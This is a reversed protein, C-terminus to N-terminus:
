GRRVWATGQLETTCEAGRKATCNVVSVTYDILSVNVGGGDLLMINDLKVDMHLVGRQHLEWLGFAVQALISKLRKKMVM